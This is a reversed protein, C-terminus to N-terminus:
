QSLQWLIFYSFLLKCVCFFGSWIKHKFYHIQRRIGIYLHSLKLSIKWVYVVNQGMLAFRLPRISSCFPACVTLREGSWLTYTHGSQFSDALCFCRKSLYICVTVYPRICIWVSLRCPLADLCCMVYQYCFVPKSADFFTQTKSFTITNTIYKNDFIFRM